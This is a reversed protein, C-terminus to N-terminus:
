KKKSPKRSTKKPKQKDIITNVDELTLNQADVNKALEVKIKGKIIDGFSENAYFITTTIEKVKGNLNGLDNKKNNGCSSFLLPLCLLILLLKKM